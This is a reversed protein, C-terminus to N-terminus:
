TQRNWDVEDLCRGSVWLFVANLVTFYGATGFEKSHQCHAVLANKLVKIVILLTRWEM